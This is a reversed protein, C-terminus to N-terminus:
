PCAGVLARGLGASTNGIGRDGTSAVFSVFYFYGGGELVPIEPDIFLTDTLDPDLTDRCDGYGADPLGDSDGDTLDALLGRYVHYAQAESVSEWSLTVADGLFMISPQPPGSLALRGISGISTHALNHETLLTWSAVRLYADSLTDYARLELDGERISTGDVIGNGDADRWSLLLDARMGGELDTQGSDLRAEVFVGISQEPQELRDLEGAPDLFVLRFADVPSTLSGPPATWSVSTAVEARDSSLASNELSDDVATRSEQLGEPNVYEDVDATAGNAITVTTVAPAADATGAADHAVARLEYDGDLMGTVDWHIFLPLRTDPNPHAPSAAPIPMFTGIPLPRYEFRVGLTTSLTSPAGQTLRGQVTVSGGRIRRGPLPAAIIARPLGALYGVDVAAPFGGQVLAPSAVTLSNGVGDRLLIEASWTGETGYRAFPVVCSYTGSLPTGSDPITSTCFTEPEAPGPGRFTVDVTAVGALDDSVDVLVSISGASVTTDLELPAFSFDVLVPPSLDSQSTVNLETPFGLGTLELTPYSRSNGAIDRVEVNLVEWIGNESYQPFAIECNFGVGGQLGFGEPNFVVVTCGRIISSAGPSTFSVKIWAVGSQTDSVDCNATVTAPGALTNLAAPAFSFDNLVPPTTDSEATVMLETPFGSASLEGSLYFRGNGDVDQLEVQLVHWTGLNSGPPFDLSCEWIGAQATGSVPAIASCDKFVLPSGPGSFTVGALATGSLDDTVQFTALVSAGGASLDIAAPTFSFDILVPPTTDTQGIVVSPAAASLAFQVALLLISGRSVPTSWTSTVFRRSELM